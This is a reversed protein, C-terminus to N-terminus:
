KVGALFNFILWLGDDICTAIYVLNGTNRMQEHLTQQHYQLRDSDGKVEIFVSRGKYLFQIDPLGVLSPSDVKFILGKPFYQKVTRIIEAQIKSGKM